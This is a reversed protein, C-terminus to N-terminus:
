GAFAASPIAEVFQEESLLWEESLMYEEERSYRSVIIALFIMACYDDPAQAYGFIGSAEVMGHLVIFLAGLLAWRGKRWTAFERFALGYSKSLLFWFIALTPLSGVLGQEALMTLYINHYSGAALHELGYVGAQMGYVGPVRSALDDRWSEFGYGFIPQETFKQWAVYWLDWRGETLHSMDGSIRMPVLGVTLGLALCAAVMWGLFRTNFKPSRLAGILVVAFLGISSIAIPTRSGTMLGAVFFVLIGVAVLLKKAQILARPRWIACSPM